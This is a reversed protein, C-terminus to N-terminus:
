SKPKKENEVLWKCCEELNSSDVQNKFSLVAEVNGLIHIRTEYEHNILVRDKLRVIKFEKIPHGRVSNITLSSSLKSRIEANEMDDLLPNNQAMSKMASRIGMNTLYHPGLKTALLLFFGAVSLILLWGLSSLGRQSKMLKMQRYGTKM